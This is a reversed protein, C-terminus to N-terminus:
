QEKRFRIVKAPVGAAVAYDPTDGAVVSGAGIIVGKGVSVGDLIIAGAGIWGNEGITVPGRSYGGQDVIPQDLRNHYYRGGGIYCNGAIISASGVTIGAISSFVCNCGVDVRKEFVIHGTKALVVCNRSIIVDDHIQIGIEGSGSADLFTYDDIAVNNGVAIGGPHRIVLGRGGIFGRGVSRFLHKAAWKRLVYGLAGGLNAAFLNYGEYVLLRAFGVDGAAKMRYRTFASSNGSHLQEGLPVKDIKSEQHSM